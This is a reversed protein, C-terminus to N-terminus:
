TTFRAADRSHHFGEQFIKSLKWWERSAAKYDEFWKPLQDFVAQPDDLHNLYFYDSKLTKM